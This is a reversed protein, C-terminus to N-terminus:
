CPWVRWGWQKGSGVWVRAEAVAVGELTQHEMRKIVQSSNSIRDIGSVSKKRFKGWGRRKRWSLSGNVKWIVCEIDELFWETIGDGSAGSRGGWALNHARSHTWIAFLKKGYCWRLSDTHTASYDEGVGLVRMYVCVWVSVSACVWVSYMKLTTAFGM